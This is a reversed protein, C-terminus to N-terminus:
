VRCVLVHGIEIRRYAATDQQGQEDTADKGTIVLILLLQVNWFLNQYLQKELQCMGAMIMRTITRQRMLLSSTAESSTVVVMLVLLITLSNGATTSLKKMGHVNM